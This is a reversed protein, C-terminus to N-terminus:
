STSPSRLSHATDSNCCRSQRLMAEAVCVSCDLGRMPLPTGQPTHFPWSYEPVQISGSEDNLSCFVLKGFARRAVIRGRVAELADGPLEVEEGAALHFYKAQLEAASATADFRHGPYHLILFHAGHEV